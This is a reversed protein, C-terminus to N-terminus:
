PIGKDDVIEQLKLHLLKVKKMKLGINIFMGTSQANGCAILFPEFIEEFNPWHLYVYMLSGIIEIVIMMFLMYYTGISIFFENTPETLRYSYIGWTSMVRQNYKLVCFKEM